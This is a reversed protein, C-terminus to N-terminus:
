FPSPARLFAIFDRWLGRWGAPPEYPEPPGEIGAANERHEDPYAERLTRALRVPEGAIRRIPADTSLFFSTM